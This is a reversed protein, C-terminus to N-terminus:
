PLNRTLDAARLRVKGTPGLPLEDLVVIRRPVKHEALQSGCHAILEALPAPHALVVAAAVLEDGRGDPVGVVAAHRVAPHRELADSVEQPSVKLGGVNIVSDRRGSIRIFGGADIEALDGTRFSGDGLPRAGEPGGLAYGAAVAPGQVVLEGTDEAVHVQVGAIARGVSDPRELVQAPVHNAVAGAESSGYHQCVPAGFRAAFRRILAPSLPATCSLLYRAAGLDPPEAVPAEAVVRYIAPVGLYVTAGAMDALARRPSLAPRQEVTAGSALVALLALDFGYSHTLPVPAVVRDGPGLGLAAVVNAAEAAVNAHTLVIAKPVGTSGSSLKVLAAGSLDPAPAERTRRIAALPALGGVGLESPAGATASAIRAADAAATVLLEPALGTVVAALEAAGLGPPVLVVTAGVEWAAVVAPMLARAADLALGVVGGERLGAAALASVLADATRRLDGGAVAGDADLVRARAIDYPSAV